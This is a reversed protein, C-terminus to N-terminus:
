QLALRTAKLAKGEGVFSVQAGSTVVNVRANAPVMVRGPIRGIIEQDRIEALLEREPAEAALESGWTGSVGGGAVAGKVRSLLDRRELEMLTPDNEIYAAM